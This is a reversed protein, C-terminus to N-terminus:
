LTMIVLQHLSQETCTQFTHVRLCLILIHAMHSRCCLYFILFRFLNIYGNCRKMRYSNTFTILILWIDHIKTKADPIDSSTENISSVALQGRWVSFLLPGFAMPLDVHKGKGNNFNRPRPTMVFGFLMESILFSIRFTIPRYSVNVESIRFIKFKQCASM